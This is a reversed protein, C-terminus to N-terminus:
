LVGSGVCVCAHGRTQGRAMTWCTDPGGVDSKRIQLVEWLVPHHSIPESEIWAAVCHKLPAAHMGCVVRWHVQSREWKVPLLQQYLHTHTPPPSPPPHSNHTMHHYTPSSCSHTHTTEFCFLLLLAAHVGTGVSGHVESRTGKVPLLQQHLHTPIHTSLPVAHACM